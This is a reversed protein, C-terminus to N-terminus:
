DVKELLTVRAARLKGDTGYPVVVTTDFSILVRWYTSSPYQTKVWALTNAVNVGAGCSLRQDINPTADLVSQPEIRWHDPPAFTTNGIAKYAVWGDNTRDLHRNCWEASSVLGKTGTLDTDQLNAGTLKAGTLDAGTLKAGTLDARTLDAGSLNARTLDAGTLKAETLKAGTLHLV